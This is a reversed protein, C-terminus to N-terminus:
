RLDIVEVEDSPAFHFIANDLKQNIKISFLKFTYKINNFDIIEIKNLIYNNNITLYAEKFSLELDNPIAKVIFINKNSEIVSLDCKEPYSYIIENLSFTTNENSFASIVVKNQAKDYNWISEGDSIINRKPLIISFSNKKKYYFEGEFNISNESQASNITQSFNSKLNQITAFKSQLKKVIEDASQAQLFIPIILFILVRFIM